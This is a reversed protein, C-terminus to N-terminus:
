ASLLRILSQELRGSLADDAWWLLVRRKSVGALRAGINHMERSGANGRRDAAKHEIVLVRGDNLEAVFDPYFRCGRRPVGVENDAGWGPLRVSM